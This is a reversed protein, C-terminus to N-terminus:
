VWLIALKEIILIRSPNSTKLHVVVDKFSSVHCTLDDDSSGVAKETQLLIRTKEVTRGSGRLHNDTNGFKTM